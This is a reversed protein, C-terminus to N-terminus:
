GSWEADKVKARKNALRALVFLLSSLRNIYPVIHEGIKEKEALVVISREARRAIARVLHLRAALETGAPLIFHRLEGIEQAMRDVDAELQKLHEQGIRPVKRGSKTALDAGLVFLERQLRELIGAIEKDKCAARALGVAANLEDADGYAAIRPSTKPGRQADSIFTQGKDGTRTYYRPM